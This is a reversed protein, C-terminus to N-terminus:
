TELLSVGVRAAAARLDPDETALPLGQRMALDLYAADYATLGQTRALDLVSGMAQELPVDHVSIPLALSEEVARAVNAPSIRHRREGIALGNAMELSWLGPVVASDEELHDLVADAYASVEDVFHWSLAVSTDLVFPM